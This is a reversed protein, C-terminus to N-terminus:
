RYGCTGRVVAVRGAAFDRVAGSIDGVGDGREWVWLWFGGVLGCCDV